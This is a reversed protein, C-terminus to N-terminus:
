SGFPEEPERSRSFISPVDVPAVRSTLLIALIEANAMLGVAALIAFARPGAGFALVGTFAAFIALGYIKASYSHTAPSVGFRFFSVLYCVAESALLLSLPLISRKVVEPTVIWTGAFICLYFALDTISDLRRLWPRAVGLKRAVVGDLVDSLMGVILLPAFLIRPAHMLALAIALPGLLLRLLTLAVPIALM